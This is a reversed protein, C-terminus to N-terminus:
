RRRGGAPRAFPRAVPRQVHQIRLNPRARRLRALGADTVGADFVLLECLPSLEAIQDLAADTLWKGRLNLRRLQLVAELHLLGAATVATYALTVQEIQPMHELEAMGADTVGSGTMVLTRLYGLERCIALDADTRAAALRQRDFFRALEHPLAGVLWRPGIRREAEATVNPPVIRTLGGMIWQERAWGSVITLACAGLLLLVGGLEIASRRRRHRYLRREQRAEHGCAPCTLGPLTPGMDHWCKPCRARGRSRDGFLGWGLLGLGVVPLLAVGLLYLGSNVLWDAM